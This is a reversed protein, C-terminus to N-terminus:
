PRKRGNWVRLCVLGMPLAIAAGCPLIGRGSPKPQETVTPQKATPQANAATFRGLISLDDVWITGINPTDSYTSFGFAIGIVGDPSTFSTGANEEWEVRRFDSWRIEVPIWDTISEQSTEIPYAYTEQNEFSGAYIDVNFVLGPESARLFFTLGEGAGWNQPMDFFLTCTGWAGPAIDFDLQLSQTGSHADGDDTACQMSTNSAEDWFPEWGNTGPPNDSEFDSILGAALPQAATAQPQAEATASTTPEFPPAPPMDGQWRHYFVNLMPVFEETAKRSGAASPHDDDSPYYLTNSEAVIHEIQGNNLRHHADPGTLIDYFDFVAVNNLSYDNERLLYNVLWLNFARANDAYTPDTLPPATIVVFLKDPRTAFYQLITNYVYKANGVTLDHGPSPPDYPNGRLESNPFCSKFMVIQNEGGPDSLTRTYGSHQGSENFLATLYRSSESGAFWELWDPIDTRDGIGDPGWGYNTDSVFYNNQDLTRGLDGYGDALWNEGTSHHLFILKVVQEPSTPDLAQLHPAPQPIVALTLIAVLTPCLISFRNMMKM